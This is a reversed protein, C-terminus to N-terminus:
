SGAKDAKEAANPNYIGKINAEEAAIARNLVEEDIAALLSKRPKDAKREMDGLKEVQDTSLNGFEAVIAQVPKALREELPDAPAEPAPEAAKPPLLHAPVDREDFHMTEGAPIMTTGVYIPMQTNNTVPVKKPIGEM